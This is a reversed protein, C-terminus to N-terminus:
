ISRERTYKNIQQCTDQKEIVKRKSRFVNTYIM